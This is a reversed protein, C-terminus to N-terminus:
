SGAETQGSRLWERALKDKNLQLWQLAIMTMSNNIRGTALWQLAQDPSITFVRIDEHESDLGHIGGANSADVRGCFLFVSESVCGPSTYYHCLPVLESIACDAEEIAERRVVDEPSEGDEIIGAVCEVLWPSESAPMRGSQIAAFAGPRFQEIMVLLDLDPDYLLVAAAHGRELVERSIEASQGGAFLAHKLRYSNVRVYSKFEQKKEIVEVDDRSMEPM